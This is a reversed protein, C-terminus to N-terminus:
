VCQVPLELPVYNRHCLHIYAAALTCFAPKSVDTHEDRICELEECMLMFQVPDVVRFCLNLPSNTSLFLFKCSLSDATGNQCIEAKKSACELDVQWSRTFQLVSHTHSGDPLLIENAAENDNTGLLGTSVGHLWGDLIVSCVELHPDCSVRLGRENSVEIINGDKRIAVEHNTYPINMVHCNVEVEGNPHIAIVTNQMQVELSRRKFRVSKLAISFTHKIVDAALIFDCSAPLKFLHGDFSVLYVDAVLFAQYNVPSDMIKRKLRYLEATPSVSNLALLPKLVFEELLVEAVGAEKVKLWPGVPLPVRFILEGESKSFKYMLLLQRRVGVLMAAMRAEMWQFTQQSVMDVAFIAVHLATLSPARLHPDYLIAPLLETLERTWMQVGQQWATDLRVGTVDHYAGALTALPKRLEQQVQQSMLHLIQLMHPLSHTLSHRLPGTIWAKWLAGARQLLLTEARQTLSLPGESLELLFMSDGAQKRFTLLLYQLRQVRDLLKSRIRYGLQQLRAEAAWLCERCGKAQFLLSQNAAGVSILALTENEIGRGGRQAELTFWHHGEFCFAVRIDDSTETDYGAATRLCNKGLMGQLWLMESRDLKAHVQIGVNRGSFLSSCALEVSWNGVQWETLLSYNSRQSSSINRLSLTFTNHQTHGSVSVRTHTYLMEKGSNVRHSGSWILAPQPPCLGIQVHHELRDRLNTHIQTLLSHSPCPFPSVNQARLEVLLTHMGKVGGQYKMSQTIRKDKWKIETNQSYAKGEQAVAFCGEMEVLPLVSQIQGPSLFICAQSRSSDDHWHESVTISVNIPKGHDRSLRAQNNSDHMHNPGHSLAHIHFQALTSIFPHKQELPDMQRSVLTWSGKIRVQDHSGFLTWNVSLDGLKRQTDNEVKLDLGWGQAKGTLEPYSQQLQTDGDSSDFQTLDQNEWQARHMLTHSGRKGGYRTKVTLNRPLLHLQPISHNFVLVQKFGSNTSSIEAEFTLVSMGVMLEATGKFSSHSHSLQSKSYFEFPLYQHLASINHSINVMLGISSTNHQGQLDFSFTSSQSNSISARIGVKLSDEEDQRSCVGLLHGIEETCKVQSHETMQTTHHLSQELTARLGSVGAHLEMQACVRSDNWKVNVGASSNFLLGASHLWPFSDSLQTHLSRCGHQTMNSSINVCVSEEMAVVCLLASLEEGSSRKHQRTVELGYVSDDVVLTLEGETLGKSQTLVGVLSASNPLAALDRISNVLDGSLSLRLQDHPLFGSLHAIFTEEEKKVTCHLFVSESSSNAALHIHGDSTVGPFLTQHFGAHICVASIGKTVKNEQSFHLTVNKEDAKLSISSGINGFPSVAITAHAHYNKDDVAIKGESHYEFESTNKHSRLVEIDLSVSNPFDLQFLQSLNAKMTIGQQSTTLDHLQVQGFAAFVEEKGTWLRGQINHLNQKNQVTICIKSDQPIRETSFSQVISSCVYPQQPQFGLTLIHIAKKNGHVLVKSELTYVKQHLDSTFTEQLILSQPLFKFPQRFNLKWRKQYVRRDKRIEEIAGEMQLEAYPNKLDSLTMTTMLLRKKLKKDLTSLVASINLDQKGYGASIDLTKVQKGNGVSIQGHLAPTWATSISYSAKVGRKGLMSWGGVKIYSVTPTFIQLQGQHEKGRDKFFGELTVSRINVLKRTTVESSFQTIGRQPQTLKQAIYVYLWPSDMNFSGEWKHLSTKSVDKWYVGAVLPIQNNYNIKLHTSSESKQKKFYSHLLQTRYNLGRDLLRLSLEVAYSTLGPGTQNRLSQNFLIRHKNSSQNWQKGYSIDLSSQVHIPSREHRLHIKHNLNIFHSCHLEHTAAIHYTQVTDSESHLNQTMHCEQMNQSDEQLGYRVRVASSWEPGRQKLLGLARISVASPLRFGADISYHRQGDELSRELQVSLSADKNFVNKLLTQIIFKRSHAHTTNVSFSFPHGDAVVKADLHFHAKTESALNVTELLGKIFYHHINDILLEIRGSHQNNLEELQAQILINKLPHTIKLILRKPSLNVDLSVDRPITSQPTGLFLLLTAELPMWSNRQTVFTYAAELLYQNLGKDLKQLRLTFLVPGLPPFGKEKLTLPYTVDSCLQWGVMKSWTKPTCTNKEKLNRTAILEEKSDGSVRFMRSNFTLVDMVEEPTNLVVKLSQGHHLYVAGDLSTFTKLQTVWELGVRGFAGDVGARVSVDVLANPKVYGALSFHSWNKYNAIGKLRLSFLTSMNISLRMPLGSLSPLVLEESLVIPRQSIKIEQGKLLKVVVGATSLSLKRQYAQLDDCTMFTLDNGFMKVNIWCRFTDDRKRQETFKTKISSLGTSQCGDSDRNRGNQGHKMSDTQAKPRSHDASALPHEEFITKLFHELNEMRLSIELLNFARGLIHVTLNAMAYRPLFSEPSFVVAGEINAAAVGTDVTYDMHSSYKWPETEFDKSIIDDPLSEMLDKKLPDETKQINFLHSWVFSGVQSSKENSLTTKVITFIEQNPCHMLQQYAAIRVEVNEQQRQFAQALARRDHNCPIRRFARIAALRLELPVSHNQVCRNLTSIIDSVAAGATEVAKLVHLLETIQFHDDAECGAELSQKLIHVFQQVESIENCPSQEQQCLSHVLSSVVLLAKPRILPIQLLASLHSIMSSTPHSAFSITNLLPLIHEQDVEKNLILDTTVHICDETGCASLMDVLPLWDDRCKFSAEHWLDRLQHSSLTRLQLVLNLLLESQQQQDALHACLRRVTNSVEQVSPGGHRGSTHSEAEFMISTLYGAIQGLNMPIVELTRLLTLSSVTKTETAELLDPLPILSVTETCNVKKLMTGDYFQICTLGASVTMGEKLPVSHRWFQNIRDSLCHQLNRIKMLSPGRQEYSSMCTGYVDIERLTERVRGSHSTQFMSLISRKINLTWVQEAEQPCLKTVKGGELSFWLPNKELSERINKLRLVSNDRKSSSQKIQINRLKLIMEPCGPRVDIDVVCDLALQSSGSSPGKWASTITTSYRFTHRQGKQVDPCASKCLQGQHLKHCDASFFILLMILCLNRFSLCFPSMAM